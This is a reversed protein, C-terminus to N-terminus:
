VLKVLRKGRNEGRYPGALADPCAEIWSRMAPDVALDNNRMLIEGAGLEPGDGAGFVFDDAQAAGAPRNVLLVRANIARHKM